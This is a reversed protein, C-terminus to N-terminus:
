PSTAGTLSPLRPPHSSLERSHAATLVCAPTFGSQVVAGALRGVRLGPALQPRGEPTCVQVGCVGRGVNTEWRLRAARLDFMRVDGSQYGALVVEEGAAHANGLAVSWCDSPPAGPAPVFAAAPAAPQRADWVRVGGDKGGTAILAPGDAAQM